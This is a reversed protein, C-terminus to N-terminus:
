AARLACSAACAECARVCEEMGGMTKCSTACRRCVEACVGCILPHLDSGSLMLNACTQCIEACTMMLRFHEQGTDQGSSPLCRSMATELCIHHCHLCHQICEELNPNASHHHM